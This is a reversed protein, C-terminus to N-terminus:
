AAAQDIGLERLLEATPIRYKNGLKLVRVPFEGRKILQYTLTRGMGFARGAFEADVTAPLALLEARSLGKIASDM